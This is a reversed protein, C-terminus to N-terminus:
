QYRGYIKAAEMLAHVNEPPTMPPLACGPGLILG